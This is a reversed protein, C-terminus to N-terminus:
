KESVSLRIKLYNLSYHLIKRHSAMFSNILLVFCIEAQETENEISSSSTFENQDMNIWGIDVHVEIYKEESDIIGEVSLLTYASHTLERTSEWCFGRHTGSFLSIM